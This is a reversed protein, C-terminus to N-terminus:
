LDYEDLLMLLTAIAEEEERQAAHLAELKAADAALEARLAADAALDDAWTSPPETKLSQAIEAVAEPKIVLDPIPPAVIPAPEIPEPEPEEHKKRRVLHITQVHKRGAHDAGSSGGGGAGPNSGGVDTTTFSIEASGVTTSVSLAQIANASFPELTGLTASLGLAGLAGSGALGAEGVTGSLSLSGLAGSGSLAAPGVTSGLGLAALAGDGALQASGTDVSVGLAALPGTQDTAQTGKLRSRPTGIGLDPFTVGRSETSTAAATAGQADAPGVTVSLAVTALSGQQDTAGTSRLRSKPTGLGLGPSETPTGSPESLALLEAAGLTASLGLAGLAGQQDTALVARLRAQPTGLALGPAHVADGSPASLGVLNAIGVTASLALAALTGMQSTEKVASRLRSTPRGLDLGPLAVSSKESSAVAGSAFDGVEFDDVTEVQRTGWLGGKGSALSSDTATIISTGNKKVVLSTGQAEIYLLDGDAVAAADSGLQTFVAGVRKYLRTEVTNGQAFYLNNVDTVRVAPGAGEDSTTTPTHITCKAYQDNPTSVGTYAAIGLQVDSSTAGLGSSRAWNVGGYNTWNGSLAGSGAFDETALVSV